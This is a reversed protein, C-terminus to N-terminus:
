PIRRGGVALLGSMLVIVGMAVTLNTLHAIGGILPPGILFGAYGVSSVSAIAAARSVGPARTAASFLIPVILALGIGVGAYGVYAVGVHGVLLTILMSVASVAAGWRLLFPESYRARLYDGGFRAVAMAASFVAFGVGAQAQPVGLEQKLYLVSWDYMVGEATMGLFIMVGILLLVGRPWAFHAKEEEAPGEAPHARLFGRSALVVMLAILGPLVWLQTAASVEAKLLAAALAAGAMGGVSFMGHLGGLIAKKSLTELITGEANISVDFLSMAAGFMLMFPLLTWVSPWHLVLALGVCMVCMAVAAANRPSLREILRGAVFLSAVAGLGACLLVTSLLAEDLQYQVKVSPIHVGWIGALMGLAFFLTRCAQRAWYLTREDPHDTLSSVTSPALDAPDPTTL